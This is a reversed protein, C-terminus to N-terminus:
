ANNPEENQKFIQILKQIRQGTNEGDKNNTTVDEPTDIKAQDWVDKHLAMVENLQERSECKDLDANLVGMQERHKTRNLPGQWKSEQAKKTQEQVYKNDDFKGLFVDANFGLMSLCKTVGDTIAKKMCDQDKKEEKKDIYYSAQGAHQFSNEPKETWMQIIVCLENTPLHHVEAVHYGWGVGVPGFKETANKIQHYPDIATIARGFTVKKTHAPNTGEVSNWLELNSM